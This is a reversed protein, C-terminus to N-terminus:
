DGFITLVQNTNIFFTQDRHYVKIYIDYSQNELDIIHKSVRSLFGCNSNVLDEIVVLTTPIKFSEKTAINQLVVGIATDVPEQGPQFARGSIAIFHSDVKISDIQWDFQEEEAINNITEQHVLSYDIVLLLCFFLILIGGFFCFFAVVRKDVRSQKFIHRIKM